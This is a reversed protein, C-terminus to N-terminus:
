RHKTFLAFIPDLSRLGGTFVSVNQMM